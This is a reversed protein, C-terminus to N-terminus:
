ADVPRPQVAPLGRSASRQPKRRVAGARTLRQAADGAVRIAACRDSRAALSELRSLVRLDPGVTVSVVVAAIVAPLSFQTPLHMFKRATLSLGRGFAIGIAGGLLCIIVAETIFQQLIDRPRAGVAMRLGIERTRETVSVLMINMIGVGGVILSVGAVVLLFITMTSAVQFLAESTETMDRISFDDPDGLKIHHREHLLTTIQDIATQIEEASHAQSLIQDVNAFRIPQPTDATETTSLVPYLSTTVSPYLQNLTNVAGSTASTAATAAASQNVNSLTSGSVRYKITTWPALVFDDQDQGFTNAGKRSLVGVVRFSVNQMRVEKGVPSEDGFLNKAVTQGLLCVAAGNRVDRDTFPAGAALNEWDRIKLFDPTSGNINMPVWNRNGYVVQCRARVLPAVASVAPCEKAIADADQPTLTMVSGSGYSVGGSTATGPMVLLLNAGMSDMTQKMAAASGQGIEMIAIVAAIGIIIGLATLFSRFLNRRMAILASVVTRPMLRVVPARSPAPRARRGVIPAASPDTQPEDM